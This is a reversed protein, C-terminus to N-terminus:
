HLIKMKLILVGSNESNEILYVLVIKDSDCTVTVRTITKKDSDGHGDLNTKTMTLTVATVTVLPSTEGDAGEKKKFFLIFLFQLVKLNQGTRRDKIVDRILTFNNM